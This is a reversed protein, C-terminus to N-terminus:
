NFKLRKKKKTILILLIIGVLLYPILYFYQRMYKKYDFTLDQNLIVDITDIAKNKYVIDISGLRTGKKENGFLQEKGNYIYDIKITEENKVYKNISKDTYIKIEQEKAYKPKLTLALINPKLIEKVSYSSKLYNYITNADIIHYPKGDIPSGATVALFTVDNLIFESALCFGAGYTFGTKSGKITSVDINSNKGAQVVTSEMYISNDSTTYTKTEYIKKFKENKLAYKLLTLVDSVTSYHNSNDLGSCNVFHTNKMGIKKAKQNMLDVFNSESGSILIAMARTADAGSPLLAAYLLDNYTVVQGEIFGVRAANQEALGDTTGYPVQVKSSLDDVKEITIISTMIKTLSAISTKKDKDKEYVIENDDLNYVISYRSNLNIAKVDINLIIIFIFVFSLYLKKM